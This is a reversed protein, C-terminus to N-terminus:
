ELEIIATEIINDLGQNEFSEDTSALIDPEIGNETVFGDPLYAYTSSYSFFWGNWLQNSVPLGGGGGTPDGLLKVNPLLSMYAAFANCASYCGRNTLVLIPKLYSVGSPNIVFEEPESLDGPGAGTKEQSFGVTTASSVFHEMISWINSADGGLNGRVDIILGKTDAYKTLIEDMGDATVENTFTSYYLYGIDEPLRCHRIWTTTDMDNPILYTDIVFEKNFNALYGSTFNYSRRKIFNQRISTHGDRLTELMDALTNFLEDESMDSSIKPEFVTKVSDWDIGKYDFYVYGENLENWLQNFNNLPTNEGDPALILTECSLFTFLMLLLFLIPRFTSM